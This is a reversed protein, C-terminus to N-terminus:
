GPHLLFYCMMSDFTKWRFWLPSPRFLSDTMYLIHLRIAIVCVTIHLPVGKLGSLVNRLWDRNAGKVADVRLESWSRKKRKKKVNGLWLFAVKHRSYIFPYTLRLCLFSQSKVRLAAQKNLWPLLYINRLKYQQRMVITPIKLRHKFKKKLFSCQARQIILNSAQLDILPSLLGKIVEFAREEM